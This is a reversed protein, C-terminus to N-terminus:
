SRSKATLPLWPPFDHYPFPHSAHLAPRQFGGRTAFPGRGSLRRPLIRLRRAPDFDGM